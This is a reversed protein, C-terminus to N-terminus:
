DGSSRLWATDSSIMWGPTNADELSRRVADVARDTAEDEDDADVAISSTFETPPGQGTWTVNEGVLPFARNWEDQTPPDFNPNREFELKVLWEAMTKGVGDDEGM